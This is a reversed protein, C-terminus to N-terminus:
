APVELVSLASRSAPEHWAIHHLSHILQHPPIDPLWMASLSDQTDGLAQEWLDALHLEQWWTVDTMETHQWETM